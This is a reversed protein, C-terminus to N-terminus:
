GWELNLEWEFQQRVTSSTLIYNTKKENM